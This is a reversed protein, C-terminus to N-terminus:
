RTRNGRPSDISASNSGRTPPPASKSDVTISRAASGLWVYGTHFLTDDDPTVLRPIARPSRRDGFLSFPDLDLDADEVFAKWSRVGAEIFERSEKLGTM